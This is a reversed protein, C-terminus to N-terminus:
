LIRTPLPVVKQGWYKNIRKQNLQKHITKHSVPTKSIKTALYDSLKQEQGGQALLARLHLRIEWAKGVLRLQQESAYSKM